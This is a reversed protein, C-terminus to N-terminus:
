PRPDNDHPVCLNATAGVAGELRINTAMERKTAITTQEGVVRTVRAMAKGGKGEKSGAVRITTVIVRAVRVRKPAAM